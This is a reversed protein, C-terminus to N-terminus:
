LQGQAIIQVEQGDEVFGQGQIIINAGEPIGTARLGEAADQVIIIEHFEVINQDNVVRVGM